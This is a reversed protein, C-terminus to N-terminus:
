REGESYIRGIGDVDGLAVCLSEAGQYPLPTHADLRVRYLGFKNVWPADRHERERALLAVFVRPTDRAFTAACSGLEWDIRVTVIFGAPDSIAIARHVAGASRFDTHPPEDAGAPLPTGAPAIWVEAEMLAAAHLPSRLKPETM